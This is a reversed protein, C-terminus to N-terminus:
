RGAPVTATYTVSGGVMSPNSSSAVTTTTATTYLFQDSISILSTATGVTVRVDVPGASGPPSNAFINNDGYVNFCPSSGCPPLSSSGFAVATAGTFGSGLIQVGTGGAAPGSRPSVGSVVPPGATDYTFKAYANTASNVTGVTVTM